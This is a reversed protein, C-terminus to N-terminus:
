VNGSRWCLNEELEEQVKVRDEVSIKKPNKKSKENCFIHDNSGSDLIFQKTDHIILKTIKEGKSLEPM